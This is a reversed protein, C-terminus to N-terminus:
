SLPQYGPPWCESPLEIWTVEGAAPNFLAEFADAVSPFRSFRRWHDNLLVIEGNPAVLIILFLGYGVPCLSENAIRPLCEIDQKSFNALTRDAHLYVPGRPTSVQLGDFEQLFRIAAEHPTIGRRVCVAVAEAPDIARGPQWGAAALAEASVTSKPQM